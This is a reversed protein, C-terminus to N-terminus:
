EKPFMDEAAAIKAKAARQAQAQHAKKEMAAAQRELAVSQRELAITQQKLKTVASAKIPETVKQDVRLELAYGSLEGYKIPKTTPTVPYFDRYGSAPLRNLAKFVQHMNVQFSSRHYQIKLADPREEHVPILFITNKEVPHIAPVIHTPRITSQNTANSVDMLMKVVLAPATVRAYQGVAIEHGRQNERRVRLPDLPLKEANIGDTDTEPITVSKEIAM